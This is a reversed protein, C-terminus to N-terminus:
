PVPSFGLPGSDGRWRGPGQVRSHGSHQGGAVWAPEGHAWCQGMSGRGERGTGPAERVSSESLTGESRGARLVWM